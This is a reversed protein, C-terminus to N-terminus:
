PDGSPSEPDGSVDVLLGWGHTLTGEKGDLTRAKTLSSRLVQKLNLTESEKFEAIRILSDQAWGEM